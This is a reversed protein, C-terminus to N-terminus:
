RSVEMFGVKVQKSFFACSYCYITKLEFREKLLGQAYKKQKIQELGLSVAKDLNVETQAKKVEILIGIGNSKDIDRQCFCIDCSEISLSDNYDYYYENIDLSGSLCESVFLHYYCDQSSNKTFGFFSSYKHLLFGINYEVSEIDNNYLGDILSKTIYAFNDNSKSIYWKALDSICEYACKNSIKVKSSLSKNYPEDLTLYGAHLLLTWFFNPNKVTAFDNYSLDDQVDADIVEHNLLQGIENEYVHPYASFIKDISRISGTENWYYRPTSSPNRKYDLVFSVIDWPCYLVNSGIQFGQYWEKCIPKLRDFGYYSLMADLEDQTFGFTKDFECSTVSHLDFNYADDKFIDIAVNLCGVIVVKSVCRCESLIGGLLSCYKDKFDQYYDKNCVKLLPVDYEDILVIPKVKSYKFVLECLDELCWPLYVSFNPNKDPCRILNLLERDEPTLPLDELFSLSSAVDGIVFSLTYVSSEYSDLSYANALSLSIVPFKGMYKKCFDKNENIKLGSFLKEQFSTNTPDHYNMEFFAKLTSLFLSKGFRRPRTFVHVKPFPEEFLKAIFETKDVYYGNFTRIEAFNQNGKSIGKLKTM